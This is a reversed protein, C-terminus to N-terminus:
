SASEITVLSSQQRASPLPHKRPLETDTHTMTLAPMARVFGDRLRITSIGETACYSVAYADRIRDLVSRTRNDNMKIDDMWPLPALDLVHPGPAATGFRQQTLWDRDRERQRVAALYATGLGPSVRELCKAYLHHGLAVRPNLKRLRHTSLSLVHTCGDTMGLRYPMPTLLAGDLLRRGDVEIVGNTALPLQTSARLITELEWATRFGRFTTTELADLDTAAIVLTLPSDVASPFHLPTRSRLLEDFVFDLDLISGGRIWRRYDVFKTTALEDYYISLPYWLTGPAQAVFYAANIAGSSAGYVVDFADKFGADDLQTCMAASIAGRMGGGSIALGVTASDDRDGPKSGTDRRRRLIELVPHAPNWYPENGASGFCYM